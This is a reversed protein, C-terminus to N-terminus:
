KTPDELFAKNRERFDDGWRISNAWDYLAERFRAVDAVRLIKVREDSVLELGNREAGHESYAFEKFREVEEPWSSVASAASTGQTRFDELLVFDSQLLEKVRLGPTDIWNVPRRVVFRHPSNKEEISKVWDVMEVVGVGDNGLVYLNLPKALRASEALLWKGQKVETAHGGTSLNVGMLRQMFIPPHRLWLMGGLLLAPAFCYVVIAGRAAPKYDCVRRFVLPM